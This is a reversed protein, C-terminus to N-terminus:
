LTRDIRLAFRHSTPVRHLCPLTLMPTSTVAKTSCLASALLMKQINAAQIKHVIFLSRACSRMSSHGNTQAARTCARASTRARPLTCLAAHVRARVVVRVCEGTFASLGLARAWM